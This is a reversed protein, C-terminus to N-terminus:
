QLAARLGRYGCQARGGEQAGSHFRQSEGLVVLGLPCNADLEGALQEIGLLIVTREVDNGPMSIEVRVLVIKTPEVGNSADTEIMRVWTDESHECGGRGDNTRSNGVKDDERRTPKNCLLGETRRPVVAVGHRLEHTQDGAVVIGFRSAFTAELGTAGGQMIDHARM